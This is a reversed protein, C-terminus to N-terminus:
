GKARRREWEGPIDRFRPPILLAPRKFWIVLCQLGFGIIMILVGSLMWCIGFRDGNGFGGVAASATFISAVGFGWALVVFPILSCVGSPYKSLTGAAMEVRDAFWGEGGRWYIPIWTTMFAASATILVACIWIIPAFEDELGSYGM